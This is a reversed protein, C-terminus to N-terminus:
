GPRTDFYLHPSVTVSHSNQQFCSPFFVSSMGSLSFEQKSHLPSVEPGRQPGKAATPVRFALVAGPGLRLNEGPIGMLVAPPKSQTQPRLQGGTGHAVCEQARELDEPARRLHFPHRGCHQGEPQNVSSHNRLHVSSCFRNRPAQPCNNFIM